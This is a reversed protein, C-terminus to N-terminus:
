EKENNAYLKAPAVTTMDMQGKIKILSPSVNKQGTVTVM